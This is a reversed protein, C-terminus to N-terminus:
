VARRHKIHQRGCYYLLGFGILAFAGFVLLHDVDRGGFLLGGWAFDSLGALGLAPIVAFKGTAVAELPFDLADAAIGTVCLGFGVHALVLWPLQPFAFHIVAFIGFLSLLAGAAFLLTWSNLFRRRM